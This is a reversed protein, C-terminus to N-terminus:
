YENLNGEIYIFSFTRWKYCRFHSFISVTQEVTQKLALFIKNKKRCITRSENQKKPTEM